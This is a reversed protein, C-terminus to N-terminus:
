TGNERQKPPPPPYGWEKFLGRVKAEKCDQSDSFVDLFESTEFIRRICLQAAGCAEERMAPDAISDKRGHVIDCRADYISKANEGCIGAVKEIGFVFKDRLHSQGYTFLAELAFVAFLFETTEENSLVAKEYLRLARRLRSSKYFWEWNDLSIIQVWSKGLADLDELTIEEGRSWPFMHRLTPYDTVGDLQCIRGELISM